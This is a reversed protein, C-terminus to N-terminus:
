VYLKALYRSTKLISEICVWSYIQLLTNIFSEVMDLDCQELVNHHIM